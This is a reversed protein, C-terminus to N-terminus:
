KFPCILFISMKTAWHVSTRSSHSTTLVNALIKLKILKNENKRQNSTPGWLDPPM